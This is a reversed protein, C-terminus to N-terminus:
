EKTTKTEFCAATCEEISAGKQACQDMCVEQSLGTKEVTAGKETIGKELTKEKFEENDGIADIVISGTLIILTLTSVIAIFLLLNKDEM